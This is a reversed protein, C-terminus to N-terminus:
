KKYLLREYNKWLQEMLQTQSLEKLKAMEKAVYSVYAPQNIKGRFPTPTLYPSDTEVLLHEVDIAKAVEKPVRANKFTLPGALSILMNLKVFEHAMEVSGSYCHMIGGAKPPHQKIIDFVDQTAERNHVIIPKNVANALEIQEIFWQKQIVATDKQWHYDLGIEGIAVIRDDAALVKLQEFEHAEIIHADSPHFGVAVDINDYKVQLDFNMYAEEITTSVSLVKMVHHAYLADMIEDMHDYLMDDVLHAHSDIWGLKEM